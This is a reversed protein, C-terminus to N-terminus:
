NRRCQHRVETFECVVFADILGTYVLLPAWRTCRLRRARQKIKWVLATSLSWRRRSCYANFCWAMSARVNLTTERRQQSFIVDLQHLLFVIISLGAGTLTVYVIVLSSSWSRRGSTSPMLSTMVSMSVNRHGSTLLATVVFVSQTIV